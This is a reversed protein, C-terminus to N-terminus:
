SIATVLWGAGNFKVVGDVLHRRLEQRVEDLLAQWGDPGLKPELEVRARRGYMTNLMMTIREEVGDGGHIAYNCEVDIPDVAVQSWGADELISRVRDADAFATPGPTGPAPPEPRPDLQDMLVGTGLTFMPNEDNGRWCAFVLRAGPQTAARINAFAAVPDDFFMVGFRSMVASFPGLAALDETQADGIVVTAQPVRERAADVMAPSIDVGVAAAGAAVSHELLVGTGCGIDLIRDGPVPQLRALVERAFGALEFDFLERYRVWGEAGTAWYERMSDNAM